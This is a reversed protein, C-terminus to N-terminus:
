KNGGDSSGNNSSGNYNNQLYRYFDGSGASGYPTAKQIASAESINRSLPANGGCVSLTGGLKLQEKIAPWNECPVAICGATANQGGRECDATKHIWKGTSMNEPIGMGIADNDFATSTETKTQYLTGPAECLKGPGQTTMRPGDAGINILFCKGGAICMCKSDLDVKVSYSGACSVKCEDQAMAVAGFVMAAFIIALSKLILVM